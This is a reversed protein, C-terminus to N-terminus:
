NGHKIHSVDEFAQKRITMSTKMPTHCVNGSVDFGCVVDTFNLSGPDVGFANVFVEHSQVAQHSFQLINKTLKNDAKSHSTKYTKQKCIKNLGLLVNGGEFVLM